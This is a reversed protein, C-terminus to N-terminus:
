DERDEDFLTPPDEYGLLRLTEEVLRYHTKKNGYYSGKQKHEWLLSILLNIQSERLFFGRKLIAPRM